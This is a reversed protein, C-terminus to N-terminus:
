HSDLIVSLGQDFSVTVKFDRRLNWQDQTIPYNFVVLGEATQGPLIVQHRALPEMRLPALDPYRQFLRDIDNPTAGLSTRQDQPLTLKSNLDFIELPKKSINKIQVQALAIVQVQDEPAGPMGPGQGDPDSFTQVPYTMLRVLTGNAVPHVIGMRLFWTVMAICTIVFGIAIPVAYVRFPHPPDVLRIHPETLKPTPSTSSNM